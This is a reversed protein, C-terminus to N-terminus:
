GGCEWNELFSPFSSISPSSSEQDLKELIKDRPEAKISVWVNIFYFDCPYYQAISKYDDNGWKARLM